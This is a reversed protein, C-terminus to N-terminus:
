KGIIKRNSNLGSRRDFQLPVPNRAPNPVRNPATQLVSKKIQGAALELGPNKVWTTLGFLIQLKVLNTLCPDSHTVGCDRGGFNCDGCHIEATKDGRNLDGADQRFWRPLKSASTCRITQNVSGSVWVGLRLGFRSHVM